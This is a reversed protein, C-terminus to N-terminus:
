TRARPQRRGCYPSSASAQKRPDGFTQPVSRADLLAATTASARSAADRPAAFAPWTCAVGAASIRRTTAAVKARHDLAPRHVLHDADHQQKAERPDRPESTQAGAQPRTRLPARTLVAVANARGRTSGTRSGFECFELGQDATAHAHSRSPSRRHDRAVVSAASSSSDRTLTEPQPGPTLPRFVGTSGQNPGRSRPTWNPDLPGRPNERKSGLEPRVSGVRHAESTHM